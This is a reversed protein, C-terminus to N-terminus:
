SVSEQRIILTRFFDHSLCRWAGERGVALRMPVVLDELGKLGANREGAGLDFGDALMPHAEIVAEPANIPAAARSMTANARRAEARAKRAPM